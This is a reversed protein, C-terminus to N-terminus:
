GGTTAGEDSEVVAQALMPRLSELRQQARKFTPDYELAEEFKEYAAHYNGKDLEGLGESYSMQADLSRTETRAGVTTEELTSNISQAVQLSLDETLEFFEDRDGMIQEALLIEGTEVKVLRASVQMRKRHVTYSGFLVTHAGLMKGMRVATSEDVYKSQQLTIEDLLWQLREREVVKLDTAGGLYNIMMSAFGQRMPEFREHEDISNNTFDMVALTHLGPDEREVRTDGEVEKRVEYYIKMLPPPEEDPNLSVLPPEMQLLDKVVRRAEDYASKAIYLRGLYKLADERLSLDATTDQAVDKFYQIATDFNAEQYAAKGQEFRADQGVAVTATVALLVLAMAVTRVTLQAIRQAIM